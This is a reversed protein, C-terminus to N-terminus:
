RRPRPTRKKRRSIKKRAQGSKVSKGIVTQRKEFDLLVKPKLELLINRGILAIRNPNAAIFPSSSWNSVCFARAILNRTESSTDSLLGRSAKNQVM